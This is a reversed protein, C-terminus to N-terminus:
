GHDSHDDAMSAARRRITMFAPVDEGFGTVRPGLDEDRRRFERPAATARPEARAPVAEPQKVARPEPPREPKPPDQRPAPAEVVPVAKRAPREPGRAVPKAVAGRGGRGRRKGGDEAWHVTAVGDVHMRPIPMGTLTEIADVFMRDDPSAISFAHGKKEARGTRGIRHVYDEAHIPVDYNFV